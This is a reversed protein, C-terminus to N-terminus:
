GNLLDELPKACEKLWFEAINTKSQGFGTGSEFGFGGGSAIGDGWGYGSASGFGGGNGGGYNNGNSMNKYYWM